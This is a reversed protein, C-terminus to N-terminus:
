RQQWVVLLTRNIAAVVLMIAGLAPQNSQFLILAALYFLALSVLVTLLGSARQGARPVLFLGWLTFVGLPVGIALAWKLWLSEAAHFGWYGLVALTVLELLASIIGNIRKLVVM